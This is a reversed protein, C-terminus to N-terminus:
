YTTDWIDDNDRMIWLLRGTELLAEYPREYHHEYMELCKWYMDEEQVLGSLAAQAKKPGVGKIGRINDTADGTLLQIYFNRIGEMETVHYLKDHTWNYHMGPIMNLDKDTSAICTETGSQCIGLADDAEHGDTVVAGKDIFYQRLAEYHLPRAQTRNGKYPLITAIDVRFNNSGTLFPLVTSAGTASKVKLLLNKALQLANAVPEAEVFEEIHDGMGPNAEIHAKAKGPTSHFVSDETMYETTQVAFGLAYCPIDADLLVTSIAM